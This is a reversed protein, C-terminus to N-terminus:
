LRDYPSNSPDNWETFTSLANDFPDTEAAGAGAVPVIRALPTGSREVTFREGKLAVRNMIDGFRRRAEM